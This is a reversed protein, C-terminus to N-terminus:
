RYIYIYIYIYIGNSAQTMYAHMIYTWSVRLTGFGQSLWFISWITLWKYVISILLCVFVYVYIVKCGIEFYFHGLLHMVVCALFFYITKTIM